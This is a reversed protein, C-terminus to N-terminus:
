SVMLLWRRPRDGGCLDRDKRYVRELDTVTMETIAAGIGLKFVFDIGAAAAAGAVGMVGGSAYASIGSFAAGIATVLPFNVAPNAVCGGIDPKYFPPPLKSLILEVIALATATAYIAKTAMMWKRRGQIVELKDKEDKLQAQIVGKQYDGGETMNSKLNDLNKAQTEEQKKQKNGGSIEAAVYVIGGAMYVMLSPQMAAMTCKTIITAGVISNAIGLIQKAIGEVAVLM